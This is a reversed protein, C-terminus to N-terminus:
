YDFAVDDDYGDDDDDDNLLNYNSSCGGATQRRRTRRRKPHRPAKPKKRRKKGSGRIAESIKKKANDLENQATNTQGRGELVNILTNKAVDKLIEGGVSLSKAALKKTLESQLVRRGANVGVRAIPILKKGLARIISGIGRGRQRNRGLHYAIM